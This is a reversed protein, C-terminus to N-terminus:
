YKSQELRRCLRLSDEDEVIYDPDHVAMPLKAGYGLRWIEVSNARADPNENADMPSEPPIIDGM